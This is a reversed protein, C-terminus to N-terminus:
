IRGIRRHDAGIIEGGLGVAPCHKGGDAHHTGNDGLLCEIAIAPVFQRRARGETQHRGQRRAARWHRQRRQMRDAGALHSGVTVSYDVRPQLHAADVAQADGICRDHRHDGAAVGIRRGDHDGFSRRLKDRSSMCHDEFVAGIRELGAGHVFPHLLILSLAKGDLLPM